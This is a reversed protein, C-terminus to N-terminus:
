AAVLAAQCGGARGGVRVGSVGGAAQWFVHAQRQALGRDAQHWAGRLTALRQCSLRGGRRELRGPPASLTHHARRSGSRRGDVPQVARNSLATCCAASWM